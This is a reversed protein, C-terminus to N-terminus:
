FRGPGNYGGNNGNNGNYPPKNKKFDHYREQRQLMAAEYIVDYLKSQRVNQVHDLPTRGANDAMIASAGYHCLLGAINNRDYRHETVLEHLVNQGSINQHDLNAGKHILFEIMDHDGARVAEFIPTREMKDLAKDQDAGAEILTKAMEIDGRKAAIHLPRAGLKTEQNADAGKELLFRVVDADGNECAYHLASMQHDRDKISIADAAGYSFLLQFVDVGCGARAAYHLATEGASIKESPDVGKLMLEKVARYDRKMLADYLDLHDQNKTDPRRYSTNNFQRKRSDGAYYNM